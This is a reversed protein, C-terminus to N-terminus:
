GLSLSKAHGVRDGDKLDADDKETRREDAETEAPEAV